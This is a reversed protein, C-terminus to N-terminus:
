RGPFYEEFSNDKYFWVIKKVSSPRSEEPLKMDKMPSDIRLGASGTESGDSYDTPRAAKNENNDFADNSFLTPIKNEKYMSGKGFLLWDTSLFQYKELMKLIFDLSPNNRGSLIHSIGSPQVGIEEAMQASSKNEALLFERIRENMVNFIPMVFTILEFM